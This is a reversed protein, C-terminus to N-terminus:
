VDYLEGIKEIYRSMMSKLEANTKARQELRRTSQYVATYDLGGAAKALEALTFGGYRRAAWLTVDRGWDGHRDRFSAWTEGKLEEMGRVWHAWAIRKRLGKRGSTERGIKLQQRVSDAFTESGLVMGWRLASWLNEEQGGRLRDEALKRYGKREGKVQRLLEGTTLWAPGPEYGAYAPYSSWRYGRLAELRKAVLEKDPKRWGRSEAAKERKGMGLGKVAVPNFHIYHSLPLLWGGGEVVVSKFRGQFVSGCRQHKLNWWVSYSVNLWQIAQSLNAEPTRVLLHYHNDMLVYAHLEVRHRVPLEALLELFHHRDRQDLYIARRQQGRATVHYWGGAINIRLPRSMGYGYVFPM